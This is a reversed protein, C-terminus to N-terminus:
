YNKVILRWIDLNFLENVIKEYAFDNLVELMPTNKDLEKPRDYKHYAIKIKIPCLTSIEKNNDYPNHSNAYFATVEESVYGHMALIENCKYDSLEIKVEM